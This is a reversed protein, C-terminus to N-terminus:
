SSLAHKVMNDVQDEGRFELYFSKDDYPDECVEGGFKEADIQAEDKNLYFRGNACHHRPEKFINWPFYSRQFGVRKGDALVHCIQIRNGAQFFEIDPEFTIKMKSIICM